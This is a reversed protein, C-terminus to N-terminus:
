VFPELLDRLQGIGHDLLEPHLEKFHDADHIPEKVKREGELLTIVNLTVDPFYSMLTHSRPSGYQPDALPDSYSGGLQSELQLLCCVLDPYLTKLMTFDVLIRKLMANETYAKCEVGLVLDGDV